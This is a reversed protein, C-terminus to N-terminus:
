RRRGRRWRQAHSTREVTRARRPEIPASWKSRCGTARSRWGSRRRMSTRAASALGRDENGGTGCRGRDRPHHARGRAAAPLERRRADHVNPRYRRRPHLRRARHGGRAEGVRPRRTSCRRGPEGIGSSECLRRNGLGARGAIGPVVLELRTGPPLALASRLEAQADSASDAATTERTSPTSRRRKRAWGGRRSTSARRSRRRWMWARVGPRACRSKQRM